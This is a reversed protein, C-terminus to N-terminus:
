SLPFGCKITEKGHAHATQLPLTKVLKGKYNTKRERLEKLRKMGQSFLRIFFFRTLILASKFAKRNELNRYKRYFFSSIFRETELLAAATVSWMDNPNIILNFKKISM